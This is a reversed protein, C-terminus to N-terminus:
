GNNEPEELQNLEEQALVHSVMSQASRLTYAAKQLYFYHDNSNMLNSCLIVEEIELLHRAIDRLRDTSDNRHLYISM